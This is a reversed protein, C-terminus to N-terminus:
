IVNFWVTRLFFLTNAKPAGTKAGSSLAVIEAALVWALDRSCEICILNRHTLGLLFMESFSFKLNLWFNSLLWRFENGWPNSVILTENEKWNLYFHSKWNIEKPLMANWRFDNQRYANPRYFYLSLIAMKKPWKASSKIIFAHNERINTM